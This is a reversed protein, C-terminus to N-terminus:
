PSESSYHFPIKKKKQDCIIPFTLLEAPTNQPYIQSLEITDNIPVVLAETNLVM